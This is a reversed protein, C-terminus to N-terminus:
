AAKGVKRTIAARLALSVSWLVILIAIVLVVGSVPRQFLVWYDGESILLARRLYVEMLPGLIFGLLLPAPELGVLRMFYGAGGFVCILGVDFVSSNISYTGICVATVIVPYLLHTPVSLLKVWIGVLPVNLLILMVNGIWFSAILGWFIEPNNTLLLPGPTIGHLMMAGLMVAMTATGPVGLTLMPIFATQAAANNAAEPSVVGEIAGHGFREPTKSIRKEVLYSFFSALTPGTGPLAGFFSGIGSGRLVPNVSRRVDDATPIMSRLTVKAKIIDPPAETFTSIIETIGFLAMALVAISIGDYLAYIDLDFRPVGSNVDIGILGLLIGVLVMAIGKAPGSKGISAAALLGLVMVSFYETPGFAIALNAIVPSLIMLLIIGVIGGIFSGVGTMLLAVGARGQRAMPYGDLATVASAAGGPVNLLISTISGGYESGYYVGALMIMATVPDMYFTFPLLLAITALPGIGPLVGVFTGLFVGVFCYALNHLSLAIPFGITFLDM